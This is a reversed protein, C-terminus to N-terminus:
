SDSEPQIFNAKKKIDADLQHFIFRLGDTKFVQMADKMPKGDAELGDIDVVMGAVLRLGFEEHDFKKGEISAELMESQLKDRLKFFEDSSAGRIKFKIPMEEATHPHKIPVWVGANSSENVKSLEKIDM